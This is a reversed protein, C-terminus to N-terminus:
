APAQAAVLAIRRAMNGFIFSHFPSVGYWYLYGLIGRPEFFATQRLRSGGSAEPLAEFQLWAKGPLRMEARLRLLGGPDWAEVRWFDVADGVRLETPSRRGRRMGFGGVMRDLLGRIEWLFDAYLWGRKGGLESFVRAVERPAAPSSQERRDILM